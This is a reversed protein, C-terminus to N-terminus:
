ENVIYLSSGKDMLRGVKGAVSSGMIVYVTRKSALRKGLAVRLCRHVIRIRMLIERLISGKKSLRRVM